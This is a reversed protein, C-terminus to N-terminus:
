RGGFGSLAIGEIYYRQALAFIILSPLITVTAAAMLLHWETGYQGTFLTLGVAVTRMELTRTAILPWLFASWERIFTFLVLTALAPRSLPLLVQWLVRIRSAGDIYASEELERPLTLLFQRMLFVGFAHFASPLILAWYTDALNTARMMLFLPVITVQQPIMLTGLYAMFLVNRGPFRLRAFAYAALVAVVTQLVTAAVAVLLTNWVFRGFPYFSFARPFNSWALASPLWRPPNTMVENEPKLATLVMWVFPILCLIVLLTLALYSVTRSLTLLVRSPTRGSAPRAPTQAQIM